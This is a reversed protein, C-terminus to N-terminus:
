GGNVLEVKLVTAVRLLDDACAVILFRLGLTPEGADRLHHGEGDTEVVEDFGTLNFVLGLKGADPM